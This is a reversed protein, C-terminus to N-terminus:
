YQRVAKGRSLNHSRALPGTEQLNSLAGKTVEHKDLIVIHRITIIVFTTSPVGVLRRQRQGIYSASQPFSNLVFASRRIASLRTKRKCSLSIPLPTSRTGGIVM